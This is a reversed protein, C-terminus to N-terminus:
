TLLFGGDVVITDGTIFSSAPSALFLILNAVDDVQGMRGIPVRALVDVTGSQILPQTGPTEIVGPAIANVRIRHPALELAAAKTLMIVGAKTVDYHSVGPNSPRFGQVSALNIVTGGNGLDAMIQGALQTCRFVARLNIDLVRDMMEVPMELFGCFPYIGANNVVIDLRGFEARARALMAALVEDSSVDGPIAIARGGSGRIEAAVKEAEALNIDQVAVAAGAAALTLCAGRGIGLGGGTVLAVQGDVRFRSEPGTAM